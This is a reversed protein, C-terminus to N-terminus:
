SKTSRPRKRPGPRVPVRHTRAASNPGAEVRRAVRVILDRLWTHAPDLQDRERWMLYVTFGPLELPPERIELPLSRAFASAVRSPLTLVLDTEAVVFPAALFHPLGLTVRRALGKKALMTDVIGGPTGQPAIMAHDMQAFSEPTWRKRKEPHGTRVMSVFREHLLARTRFGPGFDKPAVGLIADVDVDNEPARWPIVWLNIGPAERALERMLEPLLVLEAYDAGMIRFSRRSSKPDFAGPALVAKELVDLARALPERLAEARATPELGGRGRVLLPDGLSTRLRALAHSTASQSLGLKSAAQTVSRESLLVHLVRLLNLDLESLHMHRM